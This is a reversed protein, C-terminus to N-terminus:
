ATLIQARTANADLLVTPPAFGYNKQLVEAVETADHVATALKNIHQYNNIGIVLAYYPGVALASPTAPAAATSDKVQRKQPPKQGHASLTSLCAALLLMVACRKRAPSKRM